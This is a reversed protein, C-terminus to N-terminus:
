HPSSGHTSIPQIPIYHNLIPPRANQNRLNSVPNPDPNKEPIKRFHNESIIRKKQSIANTIKLARKVM